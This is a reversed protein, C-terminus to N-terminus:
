RERDRTVHSPEALDGLLHRAAVQRHCGADLSVVLHSGGSGCEILHDLREATGFGIPPSEGDGSLVQEGADAVIQACRERRHLGRHLAEFVANRWVRLAVEAHEGGLQAREVAHEVLHDLERPEFGAM